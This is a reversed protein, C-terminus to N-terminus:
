IPVVHWGVVVWGAHSVANSYKLRGTEVNRLRRRGGSTTGEYCYVYPDSISMRRVLIGEHWAYCPRKGCVVCPDKDFHKANIRAVRIRDRLLELNELSMRYRHLRTQGSMVDIAVMDKDIACADLHTPQDSDEHKRAERAQRYATIDTVPLSRPALEDPPQQGMTTSLHERLDIIDGDM